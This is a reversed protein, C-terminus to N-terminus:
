QNMKQRTLEFLETELQEDPPNIAFVVQNSDLLFWFPFSQMPVQKLFKQGTEFTSHIRCWECNQPLESARLALWQDDGFPALYVM